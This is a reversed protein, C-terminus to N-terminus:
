DAILKELLIVTSKKESFNSTYSNIGIKAFPPNLM